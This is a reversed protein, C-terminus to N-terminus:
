RVRRRAGIEPADGVDNAQTAVAPTHGASGVFRERVFTGDNRQVWEDYLTRWQAMASLVPGPTPILGHRRALSQYNLISRGGVFIPLGRIQALERFHKNINRSLVFSLGLADPGVSTVAKQFECIPVDVGLNFVRWGSRELLVNLILIGGSHRDGQVMGIIATHTPIVNAKRAEEIMVRLKNRYFGSVWREQYIECERRFWRDGVETLSPGVIRALLGETEMQEGLRDFLADGGALDGATVRDVMETVIGEDNDQREAVTEVERVLRGDRFEAILEGISQGGHALESLRRIMRVEDRGYRRHGSASRGPVPFGYRREWVRLAHCSVGTLKSVAAISYEADGSDHSM